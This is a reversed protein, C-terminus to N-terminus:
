EVVRDKAALVPNCAPQGNVAELAAPEWALGGPAVVGAVPALALSLVRMVGSLSNAPGPKLAKRRHYRHRIPRRDPPHGWSM